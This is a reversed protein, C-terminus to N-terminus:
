EPECPPVRWWQGICELFSRCVYNRVKQIISVAAAPVAAALPCAADMARAQLTLLPASALSAALLQMLLQELGQVAALAVGPPNSVLDQCTGGM